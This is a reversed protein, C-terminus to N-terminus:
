NTVMRSYRLQCCVSTSDRALWTSSHSGWGLKRVITYRGGEGMQDGFELQAWGYGDAAPMGLAESAFNLDVIQKGEPDLSFHLNALHPDTIELRNTPSIRISTSSRVIRLPRFNQTFLYRIRTM